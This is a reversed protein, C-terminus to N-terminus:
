ALMEKMEGVTCFFSSNFFRRGDANGHKKEDADWRKRDYEVAKPRGLLKRFTEWVELGLYQELIGAETSQDLVIPQAFVISSTIIRAPRMNMHWIDLWIQSQIVPQWELKVRRKLDTQGAHGYPLPSPRYGRCQHRHRQFVTASCCLRPTLYAAQQENIWRGMYFATCVFGWRPRIDNSHRSHTKEGM